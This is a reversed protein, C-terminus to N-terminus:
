CRRPPYIGNMCIQYSGIQTKIDPLKFNTTGNGGFMNRILSYLATYQTIELFKGDCMKFGEVEFNFAFWVIQGTFYEMHNTKSTIIRCIYTIQLFILVFYLFIQIFPQLTKQSLVIKTLLYAEPHYHIM